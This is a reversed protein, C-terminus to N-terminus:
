VPGNKHGQMKAVVNELNTTDSDTFTIYRPKLLHGNSVNKQTCSKLILIVRFEAFATQMTLLNQLERDTAAFLIMVDGNRLNLSLNSNLRTGAPLVTLSTLPPSSLLLEAYQEAAISKESAYFFLNM